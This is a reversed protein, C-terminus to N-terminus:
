RKSINYIMSQEQTYYVIAKKGNNFVVDCDQFNDGTRFYGKSMTTGWGMNVSWYNDYVLQGSRKTMIYGDILWGHGPADEIINHNSDIYHGMGFLFVPKKDFLSQKVLNADFRTNEDGSFVAMKRMYSIINPVSTETGTIVSKEYLSGNKDKLTKTEYVPTTATEEAILALLNSIMSVLEPPSSAEPNYENTFIYSTSTVYGWDVDQNNALFMTPKIITFLTGIAVNACGVLLNGKYENQKGDYIMAERMAYNYPEGQAWTVKSMPNVFAVIRTTPKAVGGAPNNRTNIDVETTIREKISTYSIQEKSTNLERAIKNLTPGRKESKIREIQEIDFLISNKSLEFLYCTANDMNLSSDYNDLYYLVKPAREDGCVVAFDKGGNNNSVEVEYVPINLKKIVYSRNRTLKRANSIYYKKKIVVNSTDFSRTVFGIEENVCQFDSIVNIIDKQSLEKPDDYAISVFEEATLVIKDNEADRLISSDIVDVNTCSFISFVTLIFAICKYM